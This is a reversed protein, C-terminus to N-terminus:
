RYSNPAASQLCLALAKSKRPTNRLYNSTINMMKGTSGTIRLVLVTITNTQKEKQKKKQPPSNNHTVMHKVSCINAELM